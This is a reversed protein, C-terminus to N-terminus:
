KKHFKKCIMSLSVLDTVTGLLDLIFSLGSCILILDPAQGVAQHHRTEDIDTTQHGEPFHEEYDM